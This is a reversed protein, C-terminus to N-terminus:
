PERSPDHTLFIRRYFYLYAGQLAAGLVFPALLWGAQFFAGAILPGVAFPLMQSVSNVSAALGRRHAGVLSVSLAQRAGITGRSIASRLIYLGGAWAFTPAFAMPLLLLLGVLRLWVVVNVMGFIRTLSGSMLSGAGTAVFALAMTPAITQPGVGFRLKFWYALLPGILGVGIGNLVNVAMLRRLLGNEQTRRTASQGADDVTAPEFEEDDRTRWLLVLSVCSGLLVILFVIRFDAPAPDRGGLWGPLAALLAGVSMGFFGMATNLSFIMGGNRRAISRALWSQEVPAFPGPSGNAGRGFGGIIAATALWLPQATFLAILAVVLQSCEYALLFQRRGLRDSLPGLLLTLAAGFVLGSMFLGGIAVGTWQLAHLYLAFDVVLAGQGVSRALRAAM